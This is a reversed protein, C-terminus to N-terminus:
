PSESPERSRLRNKLEDIYLYLDDVTRSELRVSPERRPKEVIKRLVAYFTYLIFAAGIIVLPGMFVVVAIIELTNLSTSKEL